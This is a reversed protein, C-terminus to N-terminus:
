LTEEEFALLQLRMSGPEAGKVKGDAGVVRHAPVFLAFDLNAMARAVGRHAGPRGAVGAVRGYSVRIGFPITFVTRWIAIDFDSGSFALPLDFVKLRRSFYAKLQQSAEFPLTGSKLRSQPEARAGADSWRSSLIHEDSSEIIFQREFPTSIVARHM